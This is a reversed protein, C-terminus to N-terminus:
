LQPPSDQSDEMWMWQTVAIVSGQVDKWIGPDFSPPETQKWESPDRSNWTGRRVEHGDTTWVVDNEPPFNEGRIQCWDSTATTNMNTPETSSAVIAPWFDHKVPSPLRRIGQHRASVMTSGSMRPSKMSRLPPCNLRTWIRKSCDSQMKSRPHLVGLRCM